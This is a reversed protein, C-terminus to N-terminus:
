RNRRIMSQAASLYAESERDGPDIELARKYARIARGWSQMSFECHGLKRWIPASSPDHALAKTFHERAVAFTRGQFAVDGLGRTAEVRAGEVESAKEFQARAGELNGRRLETEGLALLSPGHKEDLELASLFTSRATETEGAGLFMRGLRFLDEIEAGGEKVVAQFARAAERHMGEATYLDALTSLLFRDKEGLRRATELADIAEIAKKVAVLTYGLYRHLSGDAPRLRIASKFEVLAAEYRGARYLAQALAARLRPDAPDALVAMEMARRANGEDQLQEYAAALLKWCARDGGPSLCAAIHKVVGSWDGREYLIRGLYRQAEPYFGRKLEVAKMFAKEAERSEGNLYRAAGLNFWIGAESRISVAAEFHSAAESYKDAQFADIGAKVARAYEVDPKEAGLLFGQGLVIWAAAVLLSTSRLAPRRRPAPPLRPDM